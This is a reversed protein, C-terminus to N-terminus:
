AGYIWNDKTKDILKIKNDNLLNHIHFRIGQRTMNLRDALQNVSLQERKLIEFIMDRNGETKYIKRKYIRLSKNIKEGKWGLDIVSYKKNLIIYDSYLDKMGSRLINLYGYEKYLENDRYTIKSEYGLIDCINKLDQVLLKNKLVITIQTSDIHGEDIIFAILIALLSDKNKEFVFKPIRSSLSNFGSVDLSYYKFFLSSLSSPCYPRTSSEFYNEKFNIKGFIDEIKRVYGVRYFKDFQRYGFYPLRGNKPNIVTGDGINHAFLMHFVPTIQIPLVPKEIYNIGGATKYSVINDQLVNKEIKLKDCVILYVNLPVFFNKMYSNKLMNKFSIWPIEKNSFLNKYADVKSKYGLVIKKNIYNLFNEKVKINIRDLDWINFFEM